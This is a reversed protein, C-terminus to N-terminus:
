TQENTEKVREITSQNHTQQQQQQQQLKDNASFAVSFRKIWTAGFFESIQFIWSRFRGNPFYGQLHVKEMITRHGQWESHLPFIRAVNAWCSRPISSTGASTKTEYLYIDFSIFHFIPSPLCAIWLDCEIHNSNVRNSNFTRPKFEIKNM